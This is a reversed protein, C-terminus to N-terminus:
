SSALTPRQRKWLSEHRSSRRLLRVRSVRPGSEWNKSDKFATHGKQSGVSDVFLQGQIQNPLPLLIVLLLTESMNHPKLNLGLQNCSLMICDRPTPHYFLSQNRFLIVYGLHFCAFFPKPFNKWHCSFETALSASVASRKLAL